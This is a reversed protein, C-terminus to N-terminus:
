RIATPLIKFLIINSNPFVKIFEWFHHFFALLIKLPATFLFFIGLVM